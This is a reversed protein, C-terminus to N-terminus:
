LASAHAAAAAAAQGQCQVSSPEGEQFSFRLVRKPTIDGAEPTFHLKKKKTTLTQNSVEHHPQERTDSLTFFSPFIHTETLKLATKLLPFFFFIM